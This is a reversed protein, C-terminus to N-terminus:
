ATQTASKPAAVKLSLLWSGHKIQNRLHLSEDYPTRAQWMTWLIKLWRQGLCRVATAHSQGKARHAQYYAQAWACKKRSLDAWLHVTRRLPRSCAHRLHVRRQQGSEFCVPATGAYCQLAQADGFRERQSGLESLLRPALKPGAGPLSGFMGSDPHRDFLAEIATRYAALQAELTRLLKVCTLALRSKAASVAANGALENAHAFIELRHELLQPRWLRQTHLFKEWRRKGAAALIAPTPFAEILAWAGLKTWDDFAELAAPYYERLAAQLQNVLATRQEILTVEDRCLLRLEQVIPDEPALARWQHGDVRLADALSWADLVDNKVGSPAKRERYRAASKPQVPYVTYGGNLLEEVALGHNTEVAVPLGTGFKRLREHLQQWGEASHTIREQLVIAGREDVVVVDHHDAAWDLAAYYKMKEASSTNM